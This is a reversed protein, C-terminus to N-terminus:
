PVQVLIPWAYPGGTILTGQVLASDVVVIGRSGSSTNSPVSVTLVASGGNTMTDLSLVGSPTMTATFGPYTVPVVFWPEIPGNSWGNLAITAHAGAAVSIPSASAPSLDFVVDGAPAPVCPSQGKAAAVNSWIRQVLFQGEPVTLGVCLDAVEGGMYHFPNEPDTMAYAPALWYEPDTAAEMIEHSADQEISQVQTWPFSAPPPCAPIAAYRFRVPTQVTNHGWWAGSCGLGSPQTSPPYYIVYLTSDDPTPLTGALIKTALFSEIDSASASAPPTDTLVVNPGQTGAGVGYEQGVDTFWSSSVLWEGFAQVELEYAYGAFTITVLKLHSLIPGGNNPVQPLEPHPAPEFVAVDSGTDDPASDATSLDAPGADAASDGL